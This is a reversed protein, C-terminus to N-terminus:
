FAILNLGIEESFRRDIKGDIVDVVIECTASVTARALHGGYTQGQTDAIVAHIHPYTCGDMTTVTGSLSAIEFIGTYTHPMFQKNNTDFCGIQASSVAGVASVSGLKVSENECLAALSEIVDEGKDIRAIIKSGFRKYEM